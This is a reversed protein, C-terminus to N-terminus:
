VATNEDTKRAEMYRTYSKGFDLYKISTIPVSILTDQHTVIEFLPASSTGICKRKVVGKNNKSFDYCKDVIRHDVAEVKMAEREGVFYVLIEYFDPIDKNEKPIFPKNM